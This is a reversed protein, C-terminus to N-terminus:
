PVSAFGADRKFAKNAAAHQMIADRFDAKLGQQQVSLPHKPTGSKNRPVIIEPISSLYERVKSIREKIPSSYKDWNEYDGYAYMVAAMEGMPIKKYEFNPHDRFQWREFLVQPKPTALNFLNIVCPNYKTDLFLERLIRLTTDRSLNEGNGSLSGPNLMVVLSNKTNSPHKQSCWFRYEDLTEWSINWGDYEKSLIEGGFM